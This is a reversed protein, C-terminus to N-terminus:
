IEFGVENEEYPEYLEMNFYMEIPAWGVRKLEIGKYKDEIACEFRTIMFKIDQMSFTADHDETYSYVEKGEVTLNFTFPIWNEFDSRGIELDFRKGKILNIEMIINNEKSTLKAM